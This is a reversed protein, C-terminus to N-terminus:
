FCLSATLSMVKNQKVTYEDSGSMNVLGKSITFNLQLRRIRISAGYELSANFRKLDYEDSYM